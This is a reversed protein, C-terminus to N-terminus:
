ATYLVHHGTLVEIVPFVLPDAHGISMREIQVLQMLECLTDVDVVAIIMPRLISYLASEPGTFQHLM